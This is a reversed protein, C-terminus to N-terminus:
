PGGTAGGGEEEESQKGTLVANREEWFMDEEAGDIATDDTVKVVDGGGMDMICGNSVQEGRLIAQVLVV